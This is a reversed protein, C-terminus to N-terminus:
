ESGFFKELTSYGSNVLDKLNECAKKNLDVWQKFAKRGEEPFWTAGELFAASQDWMMTLGNIMGDVSAKQMDIMQKALKFQFQESMSKAAGEEKLDNKTKSQMEGRSARQKPGKSAKSKKNKSQQNM